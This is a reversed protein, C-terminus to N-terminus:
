ITNRKKVVKPPEGFSAIKTLYVPRDVFPNRNGQFEKYITENRKEEVEDVPDKLDWQRLDKEMWEKLYAGKVGTRDGGATWKGRYLMSLYFYSRALDGKLEDAVEFCEEAAAPFSKCPGIM